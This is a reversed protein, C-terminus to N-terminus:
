ALLYVTVFYVAKYLFVETSNDDSFEWDGTHEEENLSKGALTEFIQAYETWSTCSDSSKGDIFNKLQVRTLARNQVTQRYKEPLQHLLCITIGTTCQSHSLNYFTIIGDEDTENMCRQLLSLWAEQEESTM